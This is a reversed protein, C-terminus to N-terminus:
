FGTDHRITQPPDCFKEYQVETYDPKQKITEVQQILMPCALLQLRNSILAIRMQLFILVFRCAM